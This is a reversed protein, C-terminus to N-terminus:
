APVERDRGVVAADVSVSCTRSTPRRRSARDDRKFFGAFLQDHDLQRRDRSPQLEGPQLSALAREICLVNPYIRRLRGIPDLVPRPDTLRAVIYDDRSPVPSDGGAGTGPVSVGGGNLLEELTGEIRRLERRPRLVVAEVSCRGSADIDVITVSRDQGVEDFSYKLLAGATASAGM